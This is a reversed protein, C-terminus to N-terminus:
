QSIGTELEHEAMQKEIFRNVESQLIRLAVGVKFAPLEGSYILRYVSRRSVRLFSAVEDPRLIRKM